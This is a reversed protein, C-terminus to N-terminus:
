LLCDILFSLKNEILLKQSYINEIEGHLYVSKMSLEKEKVKLSIRRKALSIRQNDIINYHKEIESFKHVIRKQEQQICPFMMDANPIGRWTNQLHKEEEKLFEEKERLRQKIVEIEKIFKPNDTYHIDATHSKSLRLLPISCSSKLPSIHEYETTKPTLQPTGIKSRPLAPARSAPLPSRERLNSWYANLVEKLKKIDNSRKVEENKEVRNLMSKVLQNQTLSESIAKRSRLNSLLTKYRNLKIQIDDRYEPSASLLTSELRDIEMQLSHGEPDELEPKQTSPKRSNSELMEVDPIYHPQMLELIEQKIKLIIERLEEQYEQSEKRKKEFEEYTKEFQSKEKEFEVNRQRLLQLKKDLFDKRQLQEKERLYISNKLISVESCDWELKRKLNDHYSKTNQLERLELQMQVPNKFRPDEVSSSCEIDNLTSYSEKFTSKMGEFYKLIESHIGNMKHSNVQEDVEDAMINEVVSEKKPIMAGGSDINISFSLPGIYIKGEYCLGEEALRIIKRIDSDIRYLKHLPLSLEKHMLHKIAWVLERFDYKPLDVGLEEKLVKSLEEILLHYEELKDHEDSFKAIKRLENSRFDEATMNLRDIDVLLLEMDEYLNSKGEVSKLELDIDFSSISTFRRCHSIVREEPIKVDVSGQNDDDPKMMFEIAKNLREIQQEIPESSAQTYALYASPSTTLNLATEEKSDKM